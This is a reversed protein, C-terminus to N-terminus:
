NGVGHHTEVSDLAHFDARPKGAHGMPAGHVTIRHRGLAKAGVVGTTHQAAVAGLDDGLATMVGAHADAGCRNGICQQCQYDHVVGQAMARLTAVHHGRHRGDLCREQLPRAASRTSRQSETSIVYLAHLSARGKKKSQILYDMRLKNACPKMPDCRPRRLTVSAITAANPPSSAPQPVAKGGASTRGGWCMSMVSMPKLSRCPLRSGGRMACVTWVAAPGTETGAPPM